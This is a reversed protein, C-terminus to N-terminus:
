FPTHRQLAGSPSSCCDTVEFSYPHSRSVGGPERQQDKSWKDCTKWDDFNSINSAANPAYWTAREIADTGMINPEMEVGRAVIIHTGGCFANQAESSNKRMGFTSVLTHNWRSSFVFINFNSSECRQIESGPVWGCGYIRVNSCEYKMIEIEACIHTFYTNEFM